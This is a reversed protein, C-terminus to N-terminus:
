DGPDDAVAVYCEREPVCEEPSALEDDPGWAQCTRLCSFPVQRRQLSAYVEAPDGIDHSM